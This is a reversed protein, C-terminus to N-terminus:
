IEKLLTTELKDMCICKDPDETVETNYFAIFITNKESTNNTM